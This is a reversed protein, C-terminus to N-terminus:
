LPCFHQSYSHNADAIQPITHHSNDPKLIVVIIHVQNFWPISEGAVRGQNGIFARSHSWARDCGHGMDSFCGRMKRYRPISPDKCRQKSHLVTIDDSDSPLYLSLHRYESRKRFLITLHSQSSECAADKLGTEVHIRLSHCIVVNLTASSHSVHLLDILRVLVLEDDM